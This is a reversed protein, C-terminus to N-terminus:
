LRLVRNRLYRKPPSEGSPTTFREFTDAPALVPLATFSQLVAPAKVTPHTTGPLAAQLEDPSETPGCSMECAPAPQHTECCCTAGGVAPTAILMIAAALFVNMARTMGGGAPQGFAPRQEFLIITTAAVADGEPARPIRAPSAWCTTPDNSLGTSPTWSSM